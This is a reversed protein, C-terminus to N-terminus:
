KLMMKLRARRPPAGAFADDPSKFSSMGNLQDEPFTPKSRPRQISASLSRARTERKCPVADKHQQLM